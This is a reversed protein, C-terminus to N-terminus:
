KQKCQTRSLVLVKIWLFIQENFATSKTNTNHTLILWWSSPQNLSNINERRHSVTFTIYKQKSMSLMQTPLFSTPIVCSQYTLPLVNPKIMTKFSEFKEVNIDHENYVPAWLLRVWQLRSGTYQEYYGFENYAPDLTSSMTVSSTKSPHEYYGFENYAPDLTSQYCLKDSKKYLDFEHRM